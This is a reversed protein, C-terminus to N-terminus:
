GPGEAAAIADSSNTFDEIQRIRGDRFRFVDFMGGTTEAGSARARGSFRFLAVVAEGYVRVTDLRWNADEAWTDWWDILFRRFEDVGREHSDTFTAIPRHVFDPALLSMAADADRQALAEGFRQVLEVPDPTTSEEPM